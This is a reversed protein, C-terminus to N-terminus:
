DGYCTALAEMRDPIGGASYSASAARVEASSSNGGGVAWSLDSGFVFFSTKKRCHPPQVKTPPHRAYGKGPTICKLFSYGCRHPMAM